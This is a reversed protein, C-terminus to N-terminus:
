SPIRPRSSKPAIRHRYRDADHAATRLSRGTGYPGASRVEGCTRCRGGRGCSAPRSGRECTRSGRSASRTSGGPGPPSGQEAGSRACQPPSCPSPEWAVGHSERKRGSSRPRAARRSWASRASPRPTARCRSSPGGTWVDRMVLAIRPCFTTEGSRGAPARGERGARDPGVGRGGQRVAPLPEM